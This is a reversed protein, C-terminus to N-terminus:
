PIIIARNLIQQPIHLNFKKAQSLNIFVRNEKLFAIPMNGPSKKNELVELAMPIVLSDVMENYDSSLAAVAGSNVGEKNFSFVPVNFHTCQDIFQSINNYLMDSSGITVAQAGNAILRRVAPGLEEEKTVVEIQYDIGMKECVQRVEPLEVKKSKNKLDFIFGMQKLNPFIAIYFDLQKEVSIYYSAGSILGKPPGLSNFGLFLPNNVNTFLTPTQKIVHQAVILADSTITIILDYGKTDLEQLVKISKSLDKKGSYHDLAIAPVKETLRQEIYKATTQKQDLRDDYDFVAVKYIQARAYPLSVFLCLIILFFYRM